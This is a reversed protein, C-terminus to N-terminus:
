HVYQPRGLKAQEVGARIAAVLGNNDERELMKDASVWHGKTKLYFLICATDGAEIKEMLKGIVRTTLINNAGSLEAEYHVVLTQEEIGIYAAIQKNTAGAMKGSIVADRTAPSPKHKVGSMIQGKYFTLFGICLNYLIEFMLDIALWVYM